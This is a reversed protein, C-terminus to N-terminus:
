RAYFHSREPTSIGLNPRSLANSNDQCVTASRFLTESAAGAVAVMRCRPRLPLRGTEIGIYVHQNDRAGDRRQSGNTNPYKAASVKGSVAAGFWNGDDATNSGFGAQSPPSIVCGRLYDATFRLRWHLRAMAFVSYRSGILCDPKRLVDMPDVTRLGHQVPFRALAGFRWSFSLLGIIPESVWASDPV